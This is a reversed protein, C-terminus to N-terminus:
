EIVIQYNDAGSRDADLEAMDHVAEAHLGGGHRPLTPSGRTVGGIASCCVRVATSITESAADNRVGKMTDDTLIARGVMPRSREILTTAMLQTVM